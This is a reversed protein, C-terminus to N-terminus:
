QVVFFSFGVHAQPFLGLASLRVEAAHLRIMQFVLFSEVVGFLFERFKAFVLSRDLQRQPFSGVRSLQSTLLYFRRQSSQLPIIETESRRFRAQKVENELDCFISFNDLFQLMFELFLDFSGAFHLVLYLEAPFAIFIELRFIIFTRTAKCLIFDFFSQFFNPGFYM